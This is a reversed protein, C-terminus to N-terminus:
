TKALAEGLRQAIAEAAGTLATDPANAYRATVGRIKHGLLGAIVLDSHNMEAGASAFWHRLGHLSVGSIEAKECIRSWIRPLGVLHGKRSAGPFVYGTNRASKSKTAIVLDLATKAVPRNQAGSKTDPFRLCKAAEDIMGWQLTLVENRRCGTLLLFRVALIGVKNEGESEADRLAKGLKTVTAFSFPPSKANDKPKKVARTPNKLLVGNQVARELITGLMSVTRSAAGPGGAVKGGRGPHAKKNAAVTASKGQIVDKMFTEIDAPKLSAVARNGLLPKVHREIRSKDMVLTSKKIRNRSLALYEDCLESVTIANRLAKKEAAPDAGGSIAGLKQKAQTRAQDPTLVTCRGLTLRKSQGHANRYQIIWSKAGSPKVRVGFCPITDDFLVQDKPSALLKQVFQQTLKPM